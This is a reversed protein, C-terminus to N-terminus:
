QPEIYALTDGRGFEDNKELVRDSLVGSAPAPVDVTVKEIQIEAITEGETVASGEDTFWNTVVGEDEDTDEPWLDDTDVLVRNEDSM